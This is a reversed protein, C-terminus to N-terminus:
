AAPRDGSALIVVAEVDSRCLLAQVRAELGSAALALSKGDPGWTRSEGTLWAKLGRNVFRAHERRAEEMDAVLRLPIRGDEGSMLRKLFGPVHTLSIQAAGLAPSFNVENIIAGNEHWPVAIDPSIMDVGAVNLGLLRVAQLAAAVNDPHVVDSVDVDVGGWETTEIRRLPVTEGKAPVHDPGLGCRALEALALDDLPKLASRDWLPRKADEELEREVLVRVSSTGDGCVSIPGRQVAYLMRGDQVFLRHCLGPVQREVIALNSHSLALAEDVAKVLAEESDIDVAVGEGRDRDVPKVVVPYGIRNAAALAQQRDKAIEHLAAPLGAMRLLATSASKSQSLRAGLISDGETLSGHLLQKKAGWGLQYCGLGVHFFPIDLAHAAALIKVTRKGAPVSAKLSRVINQDIQRWVAAVAEPAPEQKEIMELLGIAGKMADAYVDHPVFPEVPVRWTIRWADGVQDDGGRARAPSARDSSIKQASTLSLPTFLPVGGLTLLRRVLREWVALRQGGSAPLGAPIGALEGWTDEGILKPAWAGIEEPMPRALPLNVSIDVNGAFRDPLRRARDQDASRRRAIVADVLKRRLVKGMANRPFESITFCQRPARSGLHERMEKLLAATEFGEGPIVALAPIAGHDQHPVGFACADKVTSSLLAAREIEAPYINIGNFIILDDTRGLFALRGEASMRGMDGPMFWGDTLGSVEEGSPQVYRLDFLQETLRVAIEGEQGAPLPKGQPDVIRVEVGSLPKGIDSENESHGGPADRPSTEGIPIASIHGIESVSYANVFNPTLRARVTDALERRIPSSTSELVPAHEFLMGTRPALRVLQSLHMPVCYLTGIRRRNILAIINEWAAESGLPYVTQGACLQYFLRQRGAGFHAQTFSFFGGRGGGVVELYREFRLRVQNQSPVFVKSQGTTGSSARVLWPRDATDALEPLDAPRTSQLCEPPCVFKWGSAPVNPDESVWAKIGLRQLVEREAENAGSTLYVGIGLATLATFQILDALPDAVKFAVLPHEQAGQARLAEMVQVVRGVFDGFTVMEERGAAKREAHEVIVAPQDPQRLAHAFIPEALNMGARM